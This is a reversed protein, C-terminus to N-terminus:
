NVLFDCFAIFETFLRVCGQKDRNVELALMTGLYGEYGSHAYLYRLMAPRTDADRLAAAVAFQLHHSNETYWSMHPYHMAKLYGLLPGLDGDVRYTERVITDWSEKEKVVIRTEYTALQKFLQELAKKSNAGEVKEIFQSESMFIKPRETKTTTDKPLNLTKRFKKCLQAYQTRETDRLGSFYTVGEKRMEELLAHASFFAERKEAPTFVEDDCVALYVRLRDEFYGPSPKGEYDYDKGFRKMEKEIEDLSMGLRVKTSLIDRLAYNRMHHGYSEHGVKAQFEEALKLDYKAVMALLENPGRWTGKGDTIAVVRMALDFVQRAYKELQDRPAWNNRWLIELADILLSSVIADKRWGHRLIGENIGKSIHFVAREPNLSSLLIAQDFHDTVVDSTERARSTQEQGIAEIEQENVLRDFLPRDLLRLSRLFAARSIGGDDGLISRKMALLTKPDSNAEVFIRVWLQSMQWQFEARGAREHTALYTRYARVIQQLWRKGRLLAVFEAILAAYLGLDNFYGHGFEDKQDRRLLAAFRHEGLAYALLAHEHVGGHMHLDLPRTKWLKSAQEKALTRDAESLSLGLVARFFTIAHVHAATAAPLRALVIKIHKMLAPSAFFAPLFEVQALEELLALNEANDFHGLEKELDKRRYRLAARMFARVVQDRRSVDGPYQPESSLRDYRDRALRKFAPVLAENNIMLRISFWNEKQHWLSESVPRVNESEEKKLAEKVHKELATHLEQAQTKKGALWLLVVNEPTAEIKKALQLNDDSMIQDYLGPEQALIAPVFSSSLSYGPADAGFGPHKGLYVDILNLELIGALDGDREYEQRLFPLFVGQLFDGNSLFDNRIVRRNARYGGKLKRAVFYEQYRRHQYIFSDQSSSAPDTSAFFQSCLYAIIANTDKYSLRPFKNLILLQLEDRTFRYQFRKQFDLSIDENLALIADKKPDLLNLEEINKKFRPEDLLLVVKQRFLDLISYNPGLREVTEWLLSLLFVDKIEGLFDPAKAKLDNFLPLKAGGDRRKFYDEVHSLTLSDLELQGAKPFYAGFLYRSPNASRCSVIIRKTTAAKSLVALHNLAADAKESSLEDLGDFLYVFGSKSQRVGYDSQRNRILNEATEAVCDKLNVLMPLAKAKAISARMAKLDASRVHGFCLLLEHMLISKGTGPQGIILAAKGSMSKLVDAPTKGAHGKLPIGLHTSSLILTTTDPDCNSKFFGFENGHGFYLQALDLNEPKILSATFHSPVRWEIKVGAASAKKEIKKPVKASLGIPRNLYVHIVDLSGNFYQLAKDVSHEIQGYDIQPDFFKAQYGYHKGKYLIPKTELGAENFDARVGSAAGFERCFLHYCLEEFSLRFNSNKVKFQDFDIRSIASPM